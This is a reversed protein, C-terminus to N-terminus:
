GDNFLAIISHSLAFGSASVVDRRACTARIRRAPIPNDRARIPVTLGDRADIARMSPQM